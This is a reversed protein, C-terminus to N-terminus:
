KKVKNNECIQYKQQEGKRGCVATGMGNGDRMPDPVLQRSREWGDLMRREKRRVMCQAGCPPSRTTERDARKKRSGEKKERQQENSLDSTASTM